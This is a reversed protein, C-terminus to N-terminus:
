CCKIRGNRDGTAIRSFPPEAEPHPNPETYETEDLIKGEKDLCEAKTKIISRDDALAESTVVCKFTNENCTLNTCSVTFYLNLMKHHLQRLAIISVIIETLELRQHDL